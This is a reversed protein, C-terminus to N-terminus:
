IEIFSCFVKYSWGKDLIGWWPKFWEYSIGLFFKFIVSNSRNFISLVRADIRNVKGFFWPQEEDPIEFDRRYFYFRSAYGTFGGCGSAPEFKWFTSHPSTVKQSKRSNNITSKKRFISTGVWWWFCRLQLQQFNANHDNISIYYKLTRGWVFNLEKRIFCQCPNKGQESNGSPSMRSRSGFRGSTRALYAVWKDLSIIKQRKRLLIFCRCQIIWYSCKDKLM